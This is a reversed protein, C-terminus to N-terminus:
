RAGGPATFREVHLSHDLLRHYRVTVNLTGDNTEIDVGQVAIVHSLHQQLVSQVLMQTTAQLAVGNPEFVLSILGSGLDPRMVREGPSTFLLQEIMDRVHDDSTTSATRGRQDFRYPFDIDM